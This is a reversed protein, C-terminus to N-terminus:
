GQRYIKGRLSKEHFYFREDLNIDNLGTKDIFFPFLFGSKLGWNKNKITYNM